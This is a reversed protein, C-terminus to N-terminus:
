RSQGCHEDGPQQQCQQEGAIEAEAEAPQAAMGHCGGLGRVVAGGHIGTGHLPDGAVGQGGLIPLRTIPHALRALHM